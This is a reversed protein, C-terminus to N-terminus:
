NDWELEHIAIIGQPCSEDWNVRFKTDSHAPERKRM